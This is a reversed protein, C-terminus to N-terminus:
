YVHWLREKLKTLEYQLESVKQYRKSPNRQLCKKIIGVLGDFCEEEIKGWKVRSKHKELLDYARQDSTPNIIEARIKENAVEREERSMAKLEERTYDAIYPYRKTVLWYAIIGLSWIDTMESAAAVKDEKLLEPASILLSGSYDRNPDPIDPILSSIGFDSIKLELTDWKIKTSHTSGSYNVVEWGNKVLINEPKLDGHYLDLSHVGGVDSLGNCIKLMIEVFPELFYNDKVTDPDLRAYNVLDVLTGECKEEVIGLYRKTGVLDILKVINPNNLDNVKRLKDVEKDFSEEFSNRKKSKVNRWATEDQKVKELDVVKLVGEPDNDAKYAVKYRGSSIKRLGTRGKKVADPLLDDYPVYLLVDEQEVKYSYPYIAMIFDLRDMGLTFGKNPQKMVESFRTTTKQIVSIFYKLHEMFEDYSFYDRKLSAPTWIKPDEYHKAKLNDAMNLSVVYYCSDKLAEPGILKEQINMLRREEDTFLQELPRHRLSEEIKPLEEERIDDTRVISMFSYDNIDNWIGFKLYFPKKPEKIDYEILDTDSEPLGTRVVLEDLNGALVPCEKFKKSDAGEMIISYLRRPNIVCARTDPNNKEQAM